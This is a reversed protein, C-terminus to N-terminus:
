FRWAFLTGDQVVLFYREIWNFLRVFVVDFIERRHQKQKVKLVWCRLHTSYAHAESVEYAVHRFILCRTDVRNLKALTSTLYTFVHIQSKRRETRSERCREIIVWLIDYSYVDCMPTRFSSKKRSASVRAVLKEVFKQTYIRSLSDMKDSSMFIQKSSQGQSPRHHQIKKEYWNNSM